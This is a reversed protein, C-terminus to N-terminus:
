GEFVRYCNRGAQKAMYLAQDGRAFLQSASDGAEPFPAVGISVTVNLSGGGPLPVPTNAVTGRIREAVIRAGAADTEPLMLVLEDGGYRGPLDVGARISGKIAQAVVQIADDGVQHGHTDNVTKFRDIDLVLLAFKRGYRLSRRLEEELRLMFFSRVYLGTLGDVTAQRYLKASEVALSAVHSVTTLVGLKQQLSTLLKGRSDVYLVGTLGAQSRLPVAVVSNIQLSVVSRTLAFESGEMDYVYVGEGTEVVKRCVTRSIDRTAMQPLPGNADRAAGFYLQNGAMLLIFAREAETVELTVQAVHDLVQELELSQSLSEYLRNLLELQLRNDRLEAAARVHPLARATFRGLLQVLRLEPEAFAPAEPERELYVAGRVGDDAFPVCAVPGVTAGAIAEALAPEMGPHAIALPKGTELARTALARAMREVRLRVEGQQHDGGLELGPVGVDRLSLFGRKAGAARLIGDLARDLTEVLGDPTLFAAAFQLVLELRRELVGAPAEAPSLALKALEAELQHILARARALPASGLEEQQMVM